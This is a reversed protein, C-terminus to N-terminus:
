GAKGLVGDVVDRRGRVGDCFWECWFEQEQTSSRNKVLVGAGSSRFEQVGSGRFQQGQGSFWIYM